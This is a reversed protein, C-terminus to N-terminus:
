LGHRRIVKISKLIHLVAVDVIHDSLFVKSIIWDVELAQRM